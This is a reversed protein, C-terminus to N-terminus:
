DGDGFLSAHLMVQPDNYTSRLKKLLEPTNDCETVLVPDSDATFVPAGHKTTRDSAYLGKYVGLPGQNAVIPFWNHFNICTNDVTAEYYTDNSIRYAFVRWYEGNNLISTLTKSVKYIVWEEEEPQYRRAEDLTINPHQDTFCAFQAVNTVEFSQNTKKDM